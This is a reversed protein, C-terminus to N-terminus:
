IRRRELNRQLMDELTPRQTAEQSGGGAGRPPTAAQRGMPSVPRRPPIEDPLSEVPQLTPFSEQMIGMAYAIKKDMPGDPGFHQDAEVAAVDWFFNSLRDKVPQGRDNVKPQLDFGMKLAEDRAMQRIRQADTHKATEQQQTQRERQLREAVMEEIVPAFEGQFGERWLGAIQPLYDEQSPDLSQMRQLADVLQEGVRQQENPTTSQALEARLRETETSLRLLDEHRQSAEQTAEYLRREAEVAAREAEEQSAYQLPPPQAETLPEETPRPPEQPPQYRRLSKDIADQM